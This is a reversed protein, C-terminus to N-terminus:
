MICVSKTIKAIETNLDVHEVWGAIMELMKRPGAFVVQVTTTVTVAGTRVATTTPPATTFSIGPTAAARTDESTINQLLVNPKNALNLITDTLM